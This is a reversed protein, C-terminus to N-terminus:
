LNWRVSVSLNPIVKRTGKRAESQIHDALAEPLDGYLRQRIYQINLWGDIRLESNKQMSWIIASTPGAQEIWRRGTRTITSFLPSGAEDLEINGNEDLRRYRVTSAREFDTRVFVRMGIEGQVKGTTRIRAWGSYTRLTDFPIEAFSDRLFRGLRLDSSGLSLLVQYNNTIDQRIEAEYQLERASQDTPRRGELVFDDVTYTARVESRVRAYTSPSPTWIVTPRFRLSRQINNEASRRAKLYVTHYYTGFLSVQMTVYPNLKYQMGFQGSFFSEDRDDQNSVPTDHRLINATAELNLSFKESVSWSNRTRIGLINRDYDAQELLDGKQTAQIPPLEDRNELQRQEVETAGTFTVQSVLKPTQYMIGIEIDVSRRTFNTDFFLSEEPTRLTRIRRNNSSYDIRNILQLSPSVPTEFEVRVLLTDSTTAEITESIPDLNSDRNLFSVSQYTDRRVNSYSVESAFQTKDFLREGRGRAKILRGRRPTILQVNGQADLEINYGAIVRKPMALITGFAPGADRRLSANQSGIAIGPRHDMAIGLFPEISLANQVSFNLSGYVTQTFVRSQGYSALYGRVGPTLKKIKKPQLTWVLINEDRFSLLNNFLIFADSTFQNHLQLSWSNIPQSIQAGAHWRYRNIDREFDTVFRYNSQGYVSSCDAWACLLCIVCTLGKVVGKLLCNVLIDRNDQLGHM